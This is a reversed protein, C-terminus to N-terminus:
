LDNLIILILVVYEYDLYFKDYEFWVMGYYGFIKKKGNDIKFIQNEVYVKLMLKSFNLIYYYNGKVDIFIIYNRDVLFLIM